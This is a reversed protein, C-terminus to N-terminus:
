PRNSQIIPPDAKPSRVNTLIRRRRVEDFFSFLESQSFITIMWVFTIAAGNKERLHLSGDDMAQIIPLRPAFKPLNAGIGVFELDTLKCRVETMGTRTIGRIQLYEDSLQIRSQAMRKMGTATSRRTVMFGGLLSAAMFVLLWPPPPLQFVINLVLWCVAGAIAGLGSGAITDALLVGRLQKRILGEPQPEITM